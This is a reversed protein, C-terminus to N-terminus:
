LLVLRQMFRPLFRRTKARSQLAVICLSSGLQLALLSAQLLLFLREISFNLSEFL